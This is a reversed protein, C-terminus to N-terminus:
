FDCLDCIYNLIHLTCFNHNIIIYPTRGDVTSQSLSSASRVYCPLSLEFNLADITTNAYDILAGYIIGTKIKVWFTGLISEHAVRSFKSVVLGTNIKFNYLFFFSWQYGTIWTFRNRFAFIHAFETCRRM